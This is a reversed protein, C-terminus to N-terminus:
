DLECETEALQKKVQTVKATTQQLNATDASVQKQIQSQKASLQAYSRSLFEPEQLTQFSNTYQM